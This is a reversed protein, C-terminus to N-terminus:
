RSGSAASSPLTVTVAGSVTEGAATSSSMSLEVLALDEEMWTRVVSGSVVVTDGAVNFRKMRLPGIRTITGGLGIFERVVREWMGQVFVNNVYMEPAGTLQAWETNHHISSFDKNAGVQTIMRHVSLPFSVSSLQDGVEVDEFHRQVSWDTM